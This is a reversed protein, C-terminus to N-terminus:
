GIGVEVSEVKLGNAMRGGRGSGVVTDGMMM